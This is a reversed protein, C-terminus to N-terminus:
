GHPLHRRRLIDRDIPAERRRLGQDPRVVRDGGIEALLNAAVEEVAEPLKTQRRALAGRETAGRRDAIYDAPHGAPIRRRDVAPDLGVDGPGTEVQYVGLPM